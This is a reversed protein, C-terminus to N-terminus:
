IKSNILNLSSVEQVFRIFEDNKAVFDTESNVELISFKNKQESISKVKLISRCYTGGRSQPPRPLRAEM